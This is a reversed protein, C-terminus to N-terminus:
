STPALKSVEYKFQDGRDKYNKFMDFSACAPSLIVVGGPVAMSRAADVIDKMTTKGTILPQAYGADKLADCIRETMRGIVVLGSVRPSHAIATAMDTFISGKDSGGVILVMPDYFAELAAITTEPVTSFSDDYYSVGDVTGCRELRHPLGVFTKVTNRIVDYSVGAARAALTAAAINELNHDGKLIIESAKCILEKKGHETSFVTHQDVYTDAEGYRTFMHINAPTLVAFSRSTEDGANLIAIDGPKQYKVIPAKADVYAQRNEHFNSALSDQNMLHEQTIRLVVAIHPSHDVDELQFSSLELVVWDDPKIEDLKSLLPVGVNGGIWVTRGANKLIEAILTSTTGKGKTGTIGITTGPIHELLLKIQSTLIGKKQAEILEPTRPNIGPSRLVMDFTLVTSLYGEGLHFEVGKQRLSTVVDGIEQETRRDLCTVHAGHKLFYEAADIGEVSVGIIAIKKGHPELM